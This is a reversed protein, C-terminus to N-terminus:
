VEKRRVDSAAHKIESRLVGLRRKHIWAENGVIKPNEVCLLCLVLSSIQCFKVNKGELLFVALFQQASEIATIIIAMNVVTFYQIRIYWSQQTRKGVLDGGLVDFLCEM